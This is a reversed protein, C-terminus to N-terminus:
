MYQCISICITYQQLRTAEDTGGAFHYSTSALASHVHYERVHCRSRAMGDTNDSLIEAAALTQEQKLKSAEYTSLASM